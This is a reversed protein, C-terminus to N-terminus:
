VSIPYKSNMHFARPGPRPETRTGTGIKCSSPLIRNVIWHQVPCGIKRPSGGWSSAILGIPEKINQHLGKGFYYAVASFDKATGPSCVRWAGKVDEKLVSSSAHDVTFLRIQPFDAKAIEAAADGSRDLLFEMNSQGSGLWVDGVLVDSFTLSGDGTVTLDFPGGAKLPSLSVKWKGDSDMIASGTQGGLSVKITKGTKAWGWVSAAGQQLVMHDGFIAPCKLEAQSSSTMLVCGLMLLIQKKM